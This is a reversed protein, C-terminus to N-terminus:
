YGRLRSKARRAELTQGGGCSMTRREVDMDAAVARCRCLGTSPAIPIASPRGYSGDMRRSKTPSSPIAIITEALFGGFKEEPYDHFIPMLLEGKYSVLLPKDNAIFEAFLSLVFLVM